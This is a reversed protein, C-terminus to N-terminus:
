EHPQLAAEEIVFSESDGPVSAGLDVLYEDVSTCGTSLTIVALAVVAWRRQM